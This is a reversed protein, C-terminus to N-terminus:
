TVGITLNDIIDIVGSTYAAANYAAQYAALTSVSGSLTAIGNEVTVDITEADVNLNRDMASIISNAIQEDMFDKTPVITLKNSVGTVGRIDFIMNEARIKKWYADVSGELTVLGDDVSVEIKSSDIYPSWALINEVADLIEDEMPTETLIVM